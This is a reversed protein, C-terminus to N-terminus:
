RQPPLFTRRYRHLIYEVSHRMDGSRVELREPGYACRLGFPRRTVKIVAQLARLADTLAGAPLMPRASGNGCEKTDAITLLVAIAYPGLARGVPFPPLATLAFVGISVSDSAM